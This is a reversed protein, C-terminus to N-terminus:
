ENTTPKKTGNPEESQPSLQKNNTSLKVGHKKELFQKFEAAEACETYIDKWDPNGLEALARQPSTLLNDIALTTSEVEKTPDIFGWAPWGINPKLVIQNLDKVYPLQGRLFAETIVTSLIPRVVKTALAFRWGQLMRRAELIGTRASSFNIDALDLFLIGYPIRTKMAIQQFLMKLTGIVEIGNRTPNFLTFKEGAKLPLIQGPQLKTYKSGTSDQNVDATSPDRTIADVLGEVDNSEIAGMICAAVRQGVVTADILDEAQKLQTLSSGFLPTQRSQQPRKIASPRRFLWASLRGNKYRPYFTYNDKSLRPMYGYKNTAETIGIKTVWYGEIQGFTNYQVGLRIPQNEMGFPTSLRDAEILEVVTQVGPKNVMPLTVLVDGNDCIGSVINRCTDNLTDEGAADIQLSWEDLFDQVQKQGDTDGASTKSHIFPGSGVVMEQFAIVTGEAIPNDKDAQRCRARLIHLEDNGMEADATDRYVKWSENHKTTRAGKYVRQGSGASSWFSSSQTKKSLNSKLYERTIKRKVKDSLKKAM